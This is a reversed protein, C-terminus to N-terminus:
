DDVALDFTKLKDPSSALFGEFSLQQSFTKGTHRKTEKLFTRPDLIKFLQSTFLRELSVVQGVYNAADKEDFTRYFYVLFDLTVDRYGKYAEPEDEKIM